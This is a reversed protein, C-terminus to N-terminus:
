NKTYKFSTNPFSILTLGKPLCEKHMLHSKGDNGTAQNALVLSGTMLVSYICSTHNAFTAWFVKSSSPFVFRAALSPLM